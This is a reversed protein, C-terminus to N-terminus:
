LLKLRGMTIQKIITSKRLLNAQSLLKIIKSNNITQQRQQIKDVGRLSLTESGRKEEGELLKTAFTKVGERTVGTTVLYSRGGFSPLLRRTTDCSM